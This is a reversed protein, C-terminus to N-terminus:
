RGLGADMAELESLPTHPTGPNAQNKPMEELDPGPQPLGENETRPPGNAVFGVACVILGIGAWRM